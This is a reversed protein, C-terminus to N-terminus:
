ALPRGFARELAAEFTMGAYTGLMSGVFLAAFAVFTAATLGHELTVAGTATISVVTAIDCFGDFVGALLKRGHVICATSTTGLGDRAAMAVLVLVYVGILSTM